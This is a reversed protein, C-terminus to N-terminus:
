DLVYYIYWGFMKTFGCLLFFLVNALILIIFLKNHINLKPVFFKSILTLPIFGVLFFILYGYSMIIPIGINLPFINFSKGSDGILLETWDSSSPVSGFTFYVSLFSGVFIVCLFGLFILISLYVVKLFKSVKTIM